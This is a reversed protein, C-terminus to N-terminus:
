MILDWKYVQFWMLFYEYALSCGVIHEELM